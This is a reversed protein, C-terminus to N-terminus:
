HIFSCRSDGNLQVLTLFAMSSLFLCVMSPSMFMLLAQSICLTLKQQSQVPTPEAPSNCGMVPVAHCSPLPDPLSISSSLLSVADSAQLVNIALFCHLCRTQKAQLPHSPPASSSFSLGVTMCLPQLLSLLLRQTWLLISLFYCFLNCWSWLSPNFLHHSPWRLVLIFPTVLCCCRAQGANLLQCRLCRHLVICYLWDQRLVRLHATCNRWRGTNLCGDGEMSSISSTSTM